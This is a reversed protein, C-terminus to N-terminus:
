TEGESQFSNIMKLRNEYYQTPDLEEAEDAGLKAEKPPEAAKQAAKEAEKEAKKKAAEEAKLQKKLANKSIEATPESM